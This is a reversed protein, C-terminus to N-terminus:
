RGSRLSMWAPLKDILAGDFGARTGAQSLAAGLAMALLLGHALVMEPRGFFAGHAMLLGALLGMPRTLLGFLLGVGSLLLLWRWLFALAEPNELLVTRAWWGLPGPLEEQARTVWAALEGGSPLESRVLRWGERVLVWGAAVRVLVLGWSPRPDEKRAM